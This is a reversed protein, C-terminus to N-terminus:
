EALIREAEAEAAASVTRYAAGGGALIQELARTAQEVDRNVVVYDFEQWHEMDAVADALRRAIVHEPDTGRGRLRRELEPKSPPMIFVTLADPASLRVQQAGQWDIELLVSQGRALMDEVVARSTGYYNDFVRASELFAGAARLTEFERKSVFFYDKGDIEAARPTRTTYSTSFQLNAARGLLAHVLTTKGAGSPASIVVLSGRQRNTM